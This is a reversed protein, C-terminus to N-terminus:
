WSNLSRRKNFRRSFRRAVPILAPPHSLNSSVLLQGHEDIISIEEVMPLSDRRKQLLSEFHRHETSFPTMPPELLQSVDMLVQDSLAFTTSVWEGVLEARTASRDRSANVEQHYQDSLVWTFLVLLGVMAAYYLAISGWRQRRYLPFANSSLSSSPPLSQPM